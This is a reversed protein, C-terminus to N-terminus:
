SFKIKSTVEDFSFLYLLTSFLMDSFLLIFSIFTSLFALIYSGEFGSSFIWSFIKKMCNPANLLLCFANSSNFLMSFYKDLRKIM